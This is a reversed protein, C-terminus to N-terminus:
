PFFSVSHKHVRDWPKISRIWEKKSSVIDTKVRGNNVFSQSDSKVVKGLIQIYGETM